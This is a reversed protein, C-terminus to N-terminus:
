PIGIWKQTQLSLRWHPNQLCYEVAQRVNEKLHPGDIPQLSFFDFEWDAVDNPHLGAQPYALKLENGRRLVIKTEGKPSVCLWDIGHPAPLTGNTEVAVEFQLEHLAAVLAEDMQLLPEGGTCVVM